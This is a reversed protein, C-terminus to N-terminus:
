ESAWETVWLQTLRHCRRYASFYLVHDGMNSLPLVAWVLRHYWWYNISCATTSGLNTTTESFGLKGLKALRYYRETSATTDGT